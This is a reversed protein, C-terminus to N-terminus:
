NSVVDPVSISLEFRCHDDGKHMCTEHKRELKTNFHEAAGDMLGEALVCLKRPSQYKMVLEDGGPDEYTFTPLEAGPYLKQVEVHIVDHVSMLFSKLNHGEFLQPYVGALQKLMYKGFARVLNEPAEGTRQALAGVYGLLEGAEYTGATTYIGGSEPDVDDLLDEWMNEGFTEEVMKNFVTFVIGKM